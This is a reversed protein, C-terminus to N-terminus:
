FAFRALVFFLVAFIVLTWFMLGYNPSLLDVKSQPAAEQALAPAAPLASIVLSRFLTRMSPDFYRLLAGDGRPSPAGSSILDQGPDPVRHRRRVARRRRHARRSDAGGDPHPGGSGAPAGYGRGGP